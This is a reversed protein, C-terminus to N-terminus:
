YMSSRYPRSVSESKNGPTPKTPRFIRSRGSILYLNAWRYTYITTCNRERISNTIDYRAYWCSPVCHQRSIFWSTNRPTCKTYLFFGLDGLFQASCNIRSYKQTEGTRCPRPQSLAAHKKTCRYSRSIIVM